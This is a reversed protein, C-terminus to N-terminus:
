RAKHAAERALLRRAQADGGAAEKSTQAPTEITEQLAQRAANSIQVTDSPNPQSKAAPPTQALPAPKASPQAAPQSAPRVAPANGISSVM